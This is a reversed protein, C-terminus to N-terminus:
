VYFESGKKTGMSVEGSIVRPHASPDAFAGRVGWHLASLASKLRKRWPNLWFGHSPALTM